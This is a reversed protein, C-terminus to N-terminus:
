RFRWSLGVTTTVFELESLDTTGLLYVVETNVTWAENLPIDLGAGFRAVLDVEKEDSFVFCNIGDVECFRRKGESERQAVGLGAVVFPQCKTRLPYAKLNATLSWASMTEHGFFRSIFLYDWGTAYQWLLEAALRPHFRYGARLDLAGGTTELDGTLRLPLGTAGRGYTGLALGGGIGVYFGLTSSKEVEPSEHRLVPTTPQDGEQGADERAAAPVAVLPLLLLLTFAIPILGNKM